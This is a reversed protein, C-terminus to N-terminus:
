YGKKTSKMKPKKGKTACKKKMKSDGKAAMLKSFNKKLEM